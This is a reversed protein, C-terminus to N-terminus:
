PRRAFDAPTEIPHEDRLALLDNDGTVLVDTHSIRRYCDTIAILTRFRLPARNDIGSQRYISTRGSRCGEIAAM